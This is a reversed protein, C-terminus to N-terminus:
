VLQRAHMDVKPAHRQILAILPPLLLFEMYDTAGLSFRHERGAADFVRSPGVLAEIDRLVRRVPEVLEDARPTPLMGRPTRVFLPDDFLQRLRNLAHSMAPQTIFTREAARSVSRERMMADFAVLLNLEVNRINM